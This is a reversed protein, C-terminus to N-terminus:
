KHSNILAHASARADKLAILAESGGLLNATLICGGLLLLMKRTLGEPDACGAERSVELLYARALEMPRRCEQHVAHNADGIEAATTSFPCKQFSPQNFWEEIVDFVALLREQATGRHKSVATRFWLEWHECRYRIAELVLEERSSFHKYITMKAVGSVMAIENIGVNHLGKTYFLNAATVLIRERLELSITKM